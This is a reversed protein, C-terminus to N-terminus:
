CSVDIEIKTITYRDRYPIILRDLLLSSSDCIYIITIDIYHDGTRGLCPLDCLPMCDALKGRKTKGSGRADGFHRCDATKSNVLM